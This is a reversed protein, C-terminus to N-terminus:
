VSESSRHALVTALDSTKAIVHIRLHASRGRVGIEYSPFSSLDLGARTAVEASVILESGYDKNLSELRSATNVVDGIATLYQAQGYGMQGVIVGGAHIGIRIGLPESLVSGLTKNLLKLAQAMELAAALADHCGQAPGSDLGFLAMIGDGVFQNPHGGAREIAQGMAVSYQNLLFVVDYPLRREAVQTFSRMDVFTIALEREAGETLRPRLPNAPLEGAPPLLPFVRLDVTPRVQCALRVDAPAAIRRLVRAEDGSPKPLRELPGVIRTRCTSCRGRGGCLSAHPIGAARSAELITFGPTVTVQRGDPYTLRVAGRRQQWTTRAVRAMFVLAVAGLYAGIAGERWTEIVDAQPPGVPAYAQRLWDSDTALVSVEQGMDVFGGVALLPVLPGLLRLAPVSAAHWPKVRLWYHIGMAGHLWAIALLLLQQVGLSPNLVWYVLVQRTYSDDVGAVEHSVRTGFVHQLLLFPITVGLGLRIIEWRPLRLHQRRYVAWLVLTFHTLLSGYLLMTGLPHRWFAIFWLRGAEAAELSVLGLAHNLLHTTVYTFLVLGSLLRLRQSM